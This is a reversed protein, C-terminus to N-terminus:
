VIEKEECGGLVAHGKAWDDRLEHECVAFVHAEPNTYSSANFTRNVWSGDNVKCQAYCTKVHTAHSAGTIGMLICVAICKLM